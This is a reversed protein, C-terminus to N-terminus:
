SSRRCHRGALREVLRRLERASRGRRRADSSATAWQASTSVELPGNRAYSRTGRGHHLAAAASRRLSFGSPVRRAAKARVGAAARRGLEDLRAQLERAMVSRPSPMAAPSSQKLFPEMSEPIALKRSSSWCPRADARAAVVRAREAPFSRRRARWCDVDRARRQSPVGALTMPVLGDAGRETTLAGPRATSRPLSGGDGAAGGPMRVEVDVPGRTTASVSTRRASREAVPYSGGSRIERIQQRGGADITVRAGIAFRNGTPRCRAPVRGLPPGDTQRNELVTPMDDMNSVVVDPDGDNDLDGVALGRSVVRSRCGAARRARVVDRFRGARTSCCSTRRGSPRASSRTTTSTRSSTATPSSSIWGATSTPTSSRSAGAWGSSRARRSGPERARTRSSRPRRPQPLAHQQRARLHHAGPRHRGDGDYDGPTSAWARGAGPGRREGRRRGAARRERLPRERPQPVPLESEFRQGRLSRRARRRRLRHRRRRLRLRRRPDALGHPRPPRSSVHRRRPERLLSGGRGAPGGPGVMIHPGNRWILTRQAGVVSDWRRDDVYRAVYLDLDGDADADFFTCGTSWGGAAVGAAAAIDEFRATARTASCSTRRGLEHCLPRARGDGDYDGACVGNGWAAADVGAQELRGRVELGGLNRYLANRHPSASAHEADLEAATVLYIDLRGDGDYDFSRSAAAARSSSTIRRRGAATPGRPCRM